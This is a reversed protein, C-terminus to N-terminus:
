RWKEDGTIAALAKRIEAHRHHPVKMRRDVAVAVDHHRREEMARDLIQALPNHKV